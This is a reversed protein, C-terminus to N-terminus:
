PSPLQLYHLTDAVFCWCHGVETLTINESELTSSRSYDYNLLSGCVSLRGATSISAM